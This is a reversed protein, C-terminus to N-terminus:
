LLENHSPQLTKQGSVTTNEVKNHSLISFTLLTGVAVDHFAKLLTALSKEDLGKKASPVEWTKNHSTAQCLPRLQGCPVDSQSTLKHRWPCTTLWQKLLPKIHLFLFFFFTHSLIHSFNRNIQPLMLLHQPLRRIGTVLVSIFSPIQKQLNGFCKCRGKKKERKKLFKRVLIVVFMNVLHAKLLNAFSYWSPKWVKCVLVSLIKM